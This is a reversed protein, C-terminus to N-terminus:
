SGALIGVGRAEAGQIKARKERIKKEGVVRCVCGRGGREGALSEWGGERYLALFPPTICVGLSIESARILPFIIYAM